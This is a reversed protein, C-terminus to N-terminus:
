FGLPPMCTSIPAATARITDDPGGSTATGSRALEVCAAAVVAITSAPRVIPVTVKAGLVITAAPEIM